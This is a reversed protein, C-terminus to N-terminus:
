NAVNDEGQAIVGQEIGAKAIYAMLATVADALDTDTQAKELINDVQILQSDPEVYVEGEEVAFRRLRVRATADGAPTPASIDVVEIWVRDYNRAPVTLPQAAMLLPLNM